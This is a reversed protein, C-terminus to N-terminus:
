GKQLAARRLVSNTHYLRRFIGEYLINMADYLKQEETDSVSSNAWLYIERMADMQEDTVAQAIYNEAEQEPQPLLAEIASNREALTKELEAIRPYPCEVDIHTTCNHTKCWRTNTEPCLFVNCDSM